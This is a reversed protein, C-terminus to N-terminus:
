PRSWGDAGVHHDSLLPADYHYRYPFIDKTSGALFDLFGDSQEKFKGQHPVYTGWHEGSDRACLEIIAWFRQGNALLIEGSTLCWGDQEYYRVKGVEFEYSGVEDQISVVKGFEAANAFEGRRFFHSGAGQPLPPGAPAVAQQGSGTGETAGTKSM